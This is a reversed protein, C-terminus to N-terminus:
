GEIQYRLCIDYSLQLRRKDILVFDVINDWTKGRSGGFSFFKIPKFVFNLM